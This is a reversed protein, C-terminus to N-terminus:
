HMKNQAELPIIRHLHGQLAMHKPSLSWSDRNRRAQDEPVVM